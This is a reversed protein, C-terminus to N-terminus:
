RALPNLRRQLGRLSPTFRSARSPPWEGTGIVIKLIYVARLPTQGKLQVVGGGLVRSVRVPTNGRIETVSNPQVAQAGRAV